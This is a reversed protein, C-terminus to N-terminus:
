SSTTYSIKKEAIARLKKKYNKTFLEELKIKKGEKADYNLLQVNGMGHAGGLYAFSGVELTFSKPFQSLVSISLSKEHGMPQADELNELVYKKASGKPFLEKEIAKNMHKQLLKNTSSIIPYESKIEMCFEYDKNPVKKCFKDVVERKEITINTAMLMNGLLFYPTLRM